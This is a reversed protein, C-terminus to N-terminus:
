SSSRRPRKQSRTTAAAPSSYPETLSEVLQDAFLLAQQDLKALSSRAKRARHYRANREEVQARQEQPVYTGSHVGDESSYLVAREHLEGRACRCSPKGCKGGQRVFSGRVLPGREALLLQLQQGRQEHTRLLSQRLASSDQKSPPPAM